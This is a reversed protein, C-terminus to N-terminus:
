ETVEDDIDPLNNSREWEDLTIAPGDGEYSSAVRWEGAVLRVWKKKGARMVRRADRTAARFAQHRQVREENLATQEQVYAEHYEKLWESM